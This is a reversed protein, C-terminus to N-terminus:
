ENKREFTIPPSYNLEVRPCLSLNFFFTIEFRRFQANINDPVAAPFTTDRNKIKHNLLQSMKIPKKSFRIYRKHRLASMVPPRPTAALPPNQVAM